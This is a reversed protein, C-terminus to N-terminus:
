AVTSPIVECINVVTNNRTKVRLDGPTKYFFFAFQCFAKTMMDVLSVCYAFHDATNKYSVDM